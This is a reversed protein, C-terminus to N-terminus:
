SRYRHCCGTAMSAMWALSAEWRNVAGPLWPPMTTISHPCGTAVDDQPPVAGIIVLAVHFLRTLSQCPLPERGPQHYIAAVAVALFQVLVLDPPLLARGGAPSPLSVMAATITSLKRCPCGSVPAASRAPIHGTVSAQRHQSSVWVRSAMSASATSVRRVRTPCLRVGGAPM